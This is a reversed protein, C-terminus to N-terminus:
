RRIHMSRPPQEYGQVERLPQPQWAQIRPARIEDHGTGDQEVRDNPPEVGLLDREALKRQPFAEDDVVDATVLLPDGERLRERLDPASADNLQSFSAAVRRRVRLLDRPQSEREKILHAGDLLSGIARAFPQLVCRQEVVDTIVDAVVAVMTVRVVQDPMATEPAELGILDFGDPQDRAIMTTTRRLLRVGLVRCERRRHPGRNPNGGSHQAHRFAEVAAVSLHHVRDIQLIAAVGGRQDDCRVVVYFQFGPRGLTLEPGQLLDDVPV